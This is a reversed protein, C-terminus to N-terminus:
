PNGLGPSNRAVGPTEPPKPFFDLKLLTQGDVWLDDVKVGWHLHPGTVRGTKGVLGLREGQKVKAGNKVLIRSM